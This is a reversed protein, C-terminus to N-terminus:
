KRSSYLSSLRQVNAIQLVNLCIDSMNLVWDEEQMLDCIRCPTEPQKLAWKVATSLEQITLMILITGSYYHLSYHCSLKIAISSCKAGVDVTDPLSLPPVNTMLPKAYM